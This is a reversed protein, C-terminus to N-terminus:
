GGAVPPFLYLTDGQTVSTKLGNLYEINRGNLLIKIYIDGNENYIVKVFADSIGTLTDLIDGVTGEQDLKIEQTNIIHRLNAFFKIKVM